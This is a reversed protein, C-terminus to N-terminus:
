HTCGANADEIRGCSFTGSGDLYNSQCIRESRSHITCNGTNTINIKSTVVTGPAGETPTATTHVAIAPSLATIAYYADDTVGAGHIPQGEASVTSNLKGAAGHDIHTVLTIM